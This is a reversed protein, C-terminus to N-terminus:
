YPMEEFLDRLKQLEPAPIPVVRESLVEQVAIVEAGDTLVICYQHKRVGEKLCVRTVTRQATYLEFNLM